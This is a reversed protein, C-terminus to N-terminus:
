KVLLQAPNEILRAFTHSIHSAMDGDIVRHDFSWSLNLIDGVDLRDERVIPQKQIKNVALIATEPPNIIPTAWLGGSGFVGYNSITITAGKMESPTFQNDVAKQKFLDFSRIVQELSMEQINKLVPVILGHKTSMAVGINHQKHILLTKQNLSSNLEPYQAMTLSLAKIFFPMYTVQMGEEIGQAKASDRFKLLREANVKEFYSFHPITQKSEAMKKAMLGRVGVLPIVEDDSSKVQNHIFDEPIVRGDKRSPSVQNINVGMEKAKKRTHPTALARATEIETEIDYLPQDKIAIQGPQHYQRSLIGPHPAPLEVTAKDTMVVVVPEDQLLHDGEKKLWEVVEGEVVGEGIDPLTVTFLHGM